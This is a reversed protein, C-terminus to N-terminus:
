IGPRGYHRRGALLALGLHRKDRVTADDSNDVIPILADTSEAAPSAFDQQQQEDIAVVFAVTM